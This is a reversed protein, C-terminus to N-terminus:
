LPDAPLRRPTQVAGAARRRADRQKLRSVERRAESCGRSLNVPM